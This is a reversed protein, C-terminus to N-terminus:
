EFYIEMIDKVENGSQDHLPMGREDLYLIGNIKVMQIQGRVKPTKIVITSDVDPLLNDHDMFDEQEFPDVIYGKKMEDTVITVALDGTWSSSLNVGVDSNNVFHLKLKKNEDSYKAKCYIGNLTASATMDEYYFESVDYVYIHRDSKTKAIVAVRGARTPQFVISKKNKKKIKVHSEFISWKVKEKCNKISVKVTDGVTIDETDCTFYVKKSKKASAPQINTILLMVALLLIIIKKINKM